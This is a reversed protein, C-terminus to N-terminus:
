TVLAKLEFDIPLSHIHGHGKYILEFRKGSRIHSISIIRGRSIITCRAM